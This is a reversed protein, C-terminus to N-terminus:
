VEYAPSMPGTLGSLRLWLVILMVIIGALLFYFAFRLGRLKSLLVTDVFVSKGSLADGLTMGHGTVPVVTPVAYLIAVAWLFVPLIHVIRLVYNGISGLTAFAVATFYAGALVTSLTIIQKGGEAMRAAAGVISQKQVDLWISEAFDVQSQKERPRDDHM